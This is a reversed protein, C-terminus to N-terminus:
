IQLINSTELVKLTLQLVLNHLEVVHM